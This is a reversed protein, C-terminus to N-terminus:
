DDVLKLWWGSRENRLCPTLFFHDSILPTEVTCLALAQRQLDHTLVSVDIPKPTINGGSADVMAKMRNDVQRM